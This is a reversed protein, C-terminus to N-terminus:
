SHKHMCWILGSATRHCALVCTRGFKECQCQTHFVLLLFPATVLGNMCVRIQLYRVWGVYLGHAAAERTYPSTCAEKGISVDDTLSTVSM